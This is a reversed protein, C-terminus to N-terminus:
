GALKKPLVTHLAMPRFAGPPRRPAGQGLNGVEGIGGPLRPPAIGLQQHTDDVALSCLHRGPAPLDTVLLREPQHGVDPGEGWGRPGRLNTGFTRLLAVALTVM